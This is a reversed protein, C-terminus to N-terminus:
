SMLIDNVLDEESTINKTNKITTTTNIKEPLTSNMEDATDSKSLSTALMELTMTSPTSAMCSNARHNAVTMGGGLIAEIKELREKTQQLHKRKNRILSDEMLQADVFDPIEVPIQTLRQRVGPCVDFVCGSRLSLAVYDMYRKTLLKWYAYVSIVMHQVAQDDNSVSNFISQNDDDKTSSKRGSPAASAAKKEILFQKFENITDMYYHNLTYPEQKEIRIMDKLQIYITSKKEQLFKMATDRFVPLLKLLLINDQCAETDKHVLIGSVHQFSQSILIETTQWLQDLKENILRKLVPHPLFNPLQEGFCTAMAKSVKARYTDTYFENLQHHIIDKYRTFLTHLTNVLSAGHCDSSSTFRIKIVNEVYTDALEYYKALRAASTELNPPCKLLQELIDRLRNEVDTKLKPFTERVRDAYLDALRTILADIGLCDWGTITAISSQSFFDKERKRAEELTMTEDGSRNRVAVFGLKLKLVDTKEMLLQQILADEKPALDSKTIVGITRIGEPDFERAINFSEVTVVDVNAPFVCLVVSGEQRIFKRILETTQKYIDKPQDAIPIRAIGPLDVVTLDRVNPDEIQLEILDHVVNKSTGALKQTEREIYHLIGLKGENLLTRKKEQLRYVMRKPARRMRLVLPCRTVIGTGKPLEVLSLAELLTSKGSSQDGVVVVNPFAIGDENSSLLSRVQDIKDMLPRIKEDYANTFTSM